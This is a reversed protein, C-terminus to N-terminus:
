CYYFLFFSIFLFVFVCVCVCERKKKRKMSEKTAFDKFSNEIDKAQVIESAFHTPRANPAGGTTMGGINLNATSGGKSLTRTTGIELKFFFFFVTLYILCVCVCV